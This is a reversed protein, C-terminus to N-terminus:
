RKAWGCAPARAARAWARCISPANHIKRPAVLKGDVVVARTGVVRESEVDCRRWPGAEVATAVALVLPLALAARRM